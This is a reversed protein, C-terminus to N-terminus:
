EAFRRYEKPVAIQFRQCLLQVDHWDTEDIEYGTHFEVLWKPPVCRVTTNLIRGTGCLHESRYPVGGANEGNQDLVYSHIDVAEGQANAFVFNHAWSDHRWVETFGDAALIERLLPVEQAPVAIDLDNHPRTQRGLVADVAWGGDLCIHLGRATTDRWFRIVSIAKM